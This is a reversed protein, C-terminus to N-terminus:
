PNNVEVTRVTAVWRVNTADGTVTIILADNTDDATVSVDWGAVDEALVTKTVSGVIATTDSVNEIGGTVQYHGSNGTTSRGVILIDFTWSSGSPVNIRESYAGGDLFTEAPTSTTTAKRLVYTSTQADGVTSFKGSAYAMQGYSGTAAQQGGPVTSGVGVAHNQQGGGITTYEYYDISNDKGGAIVSWSWGCYNNQGGGIVSYNAGAASIVNERGGGIFDYAGDAIQNNEGGVIASPGAVDQLRNGTGAVIVCGTSSLNATTNNFGGGIFHHTGDNANDIFNGEGGGIFSNTALIINRLGGGIASYAVTVKNSRGGGIASFNASASNTNKDGGAITSSTGNLDHSTGINLRDGTVDM